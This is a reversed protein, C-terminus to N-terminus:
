KWFWFEKSLYIRNRGKKLVILDSGANGFNRERKNVLRGM